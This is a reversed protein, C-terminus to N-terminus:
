DTSLQAQEDESLGLLYLVDSLSGSNLRVPALAQVKEKANFAVGLGAIGLMPLDNAGDGVCIVQSLPIGNEEAIQLVLERKREAHVIDGTVEGTLTKGDPSICLTNAFAYDM